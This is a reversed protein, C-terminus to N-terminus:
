FLNLMALSFVGVLALFQLLLNTGILLWSALIDKQYIAHILFVNVVLILSLGIMWLYRNLFSFAGGLSLNLGFTLSYPAVALIWILWAILNLVISGGIFLSIVKERRKLRGWQYFFSADVEFDLFKVRFM